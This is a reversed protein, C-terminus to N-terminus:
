GKVAGALLGKILYKSGFLYIILVPVCALTLASFVLNWNTSFQGFFMTVALMLTRKEKTKIFILPFYVDNWIPIFNYVIVTAIAPKILPIIVKRLVKWTNAGDIFASEELANPIMKIFGTLIFMTFPINMAIYIIIIGWLRDILKLNYLLDNLTLLGLRLPIMMGALFYFYLFKSLKDTYRSLAYALLLSVGLLIVSSMITVYFSNAFYITYNEKRFLTEFGSFTVDIPFGSPNSFIEKNSKLSTVVMLFIPYITYFTYLILVFYIIIYQPKFRKTRM